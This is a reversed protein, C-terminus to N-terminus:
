EERGVTFTIKPVKREIKETEKGVVTETGGQAEERDETEPEAHQPGPGLNVTYVGLLSSDSSSTPLREEAESFLNLRSSSSSSRSLGPDEM